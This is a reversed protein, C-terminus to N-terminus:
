IAPHKLNGHQGIIITTSSIYDVVETKGRKVFAAAGQKDGVYVYRGDKVAFAEAMRNGESTFVKGCVVLDADTRGAALVNEYPLLGLAAVGLAANKVFERRTINKM